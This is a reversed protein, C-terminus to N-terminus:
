LAPVDHMRRSFISSFIIPQPTRSARPRQNSYSFADGGRVGNAPRFINRVAKLFRFVIPTPSVSVLRDEKGRNEKRRSVAQQFMSPGALPTRPPSAKAYELLRSRGDRVGCGIMSKQKWRGASSLPM